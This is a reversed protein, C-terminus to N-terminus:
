EPNKKSKRKNSAQEKDTAWRCNSPEYNGNVNTRDLTRGEPREGMDEKFNIYSELWRECVTIGRGGYSQYNSAKQINCRRIMAEWSRYTGTYSDGHKKSKCGCSTKSENQLNIVLGICEKGCDCLLLVQRRKKGTTSDTKDEVDGIVTLNNFRKNIYDIRKRGIIM